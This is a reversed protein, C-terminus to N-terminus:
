TICIIHIYIYVCIYSPPESLSALRSRRNLPAKLARSAVCYAVAYCLMVYCLVVYCSMVHCSMVYCSIMIYVLVEPPTTKVSVPIIGEGRRSVGPYHKRNTTRSSCKTPRPSTPSLPSEGARRPRERRRRCRALPLRMFLYMIHLHIDRERERYIYIYVDYLIIHYLIYPGHKCM